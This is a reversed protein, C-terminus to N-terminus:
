PPPDTQLQGPPASLRSELEALRAAKPKRGLKKVAVFFEELEGGQEALLRHFAPVLRYYAELDNLHANNLPQQFWGEFEGPQGWQQRLAAYDDHLRQLIAQKSARLEAIQAATFERPDIRGNPRNAHLGFLNTLERRTSSVLAIFQDKRLIEAEYQRAAAEGRAAVLWRRTAVESVATALAENFDTDGAVFLRQHTLEHFLL